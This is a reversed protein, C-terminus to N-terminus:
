ERIKVKNNYSNRRVINQYERLKTVQNIDNKKQYETMIFLVFFATYFIM